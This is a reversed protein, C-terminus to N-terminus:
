AEGEKSDPRDDLGGLNEQLQELWYNCDQIAGLVANFNALITDKDKELRAKRQLIAEETIM